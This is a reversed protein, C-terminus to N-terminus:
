RTRWEPILQRGIRLRRGAGRSDLGAVRPRSSAWCRSPMAQPGDPSSTTPCRADNRYVGQVGGVEEILFQLTADVLNRYLQSRRVGDPLAVESVERAVGAGLGVTSRILREPLSLLYTKVTV